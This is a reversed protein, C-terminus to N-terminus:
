AVPAGVPLTLTFVTHPGDATPLTSEVALDGGYRRALTRSIYLGLGSSTKEESRGLQPTWGRDFLHARYHVPIGAGDDAVRVQFNYSDRTVTIEIYDGGYRLANDVLNAIIHELAAADSYVLGFDEPESWWAIDKGQEAAQGTYREVIRSVVASLAMGKLGGTIASRLIGIGIVVRRPTEGCMSLVTSGPIWISELVMHAAGVATAIGADVSVKRRAERLGELADAYIGHLELITAYEGRLADCDACMNQESASPTAVALGGVLAGTGLLRLVGM